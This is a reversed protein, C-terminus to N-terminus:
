SQLHWTVQPASLELVRWSAPSGDWDLTAMDGAHLDMRLAVTIGERWPLTSHTIRWGDATRHGFSIEFDLLGAQLGPAVAAFDMGPQADQPWAAARSRVHMVHDGSVLLLQVPQTADGSPAMRQFVAQGPLSCPEAIWHELYIGHVGTEILRAPEFQMFGADPGAAPPQFDVLRHWACVDGQASDTVETTGAFGQQRMLWARQVPTCADLSTVGSFDPRQAPIRIDAHWCATQLWLVATETDSREPTQLLTRRWVGRYRVPVPATPVLVLAAAM